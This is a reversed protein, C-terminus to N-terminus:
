LNLFVLKATRSSKEKCVRIARRFSMSNALILFACNLSVRSLSLISLLTYVYSAADAVTTGRGRYCLVLRPVRADLFFGLEVCSGIAGECRDIDNVLMRLMRGLRLSIEDYKSSQSHSM